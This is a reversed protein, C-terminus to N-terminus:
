MAQEEQRRVYVDWLERKRDELHNVVRQMLARLVPPIVLNDELVGEIWDLVRSDVSEQWSVSGFREARGAWRLRVMRVQFNAVIEAILYVGPLSGAVNRNRLSVLGLGPSETEYGFRQSHDTFSIAYTEEWEWGNPGSALDISAAGPDNEDRLESLADEVYRPVTNMLEALKYRLRAEKHYHDQLATVADFAEQSCGRHWSLIDYIRVPAASVTHVLDFYTLYQKLAEPDFTEDDLAEQFNHRLIAERACHDNLVQQATAIRQSGARTAM